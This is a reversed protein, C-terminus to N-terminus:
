LGSDQTERKGPSGVRCVTPCRAWPNHKPYLPPGQSEPVHERLFLLIWISSLFLPLRPPPIMTLWVASFLHSDLQWLTVVPCLHIVRRIGGQVQSGDSTGVMLSTSMGGKIFLESGATGALGMVRCSQTPPLRAQHHALDQGDLSQFQHQEESVARCKVGMKVFLQSSLQNKWARRGTCLQANCVTSTAGPAEKRPPCTM